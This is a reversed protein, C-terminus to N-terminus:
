RVIHKKGDQIYLQGPAPATIRRGLIDYLPAASEPSETIESIGDVGFLDNIPIETCDNEARYVVRGDTSLVRNFIHDMCPCTPVSYFSITTLCGYGDIGIGEVIPDSIDVWEELWDDYVAIRQLSHEEGDIEVHEIATVKYDMEFGWAGTHVGRYTEGEKCTFDYLVKEEIRYSDLEPFDPTYLGLESYEKNSDDTVVLSYVKGDEERLYGEHKYYDNNVSLVQPQTDYDYTYRIERFAELRHYTKGNIEETGAFRVHYARTDGWYVYIHEWVRDYRIMSKYEDASASFTYALMTIAIAIASFSKSLDTTFKKM